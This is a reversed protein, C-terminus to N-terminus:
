NAGVLEIILPGFYRRMLKDIESRSPQMLPEDSIEGNEYMQQLKELVDNQDSTKDIQKAIEATVEKGLTTRYVKFGYHSLFNNCFHQCNSTFLSYHKMKAVIYDAVDLISTLTGKIIGCHTSNGNDTGTYIERKISEADPLVYIELSLYPLTSSEIKLLLFWHRCFKHNIYINYKTPVEKLSEYSTAKIIESFKKDQEGPNHQDGKRKGRASSGSSSLYGSIASPAKPDNSAASSLSSLRNLFSM